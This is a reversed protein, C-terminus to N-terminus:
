GQFLSMLPNSFIDSRYSYAMSGTLSQNDTLPQNYYLRFSSTLEPQLRFRNGALNGNESDDDIEADIYALNAFVDFYDGLLAIIETEVGINTASGAHTTFFNGTDDQQTV